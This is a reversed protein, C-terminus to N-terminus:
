TQALALEVLSFCARWSMPALNNRKDTIPM